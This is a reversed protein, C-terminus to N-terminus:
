AATPLAANPDSPNSRPDPHPGAPRTRLLQRSEPDFFALTTDDIRITIRRGALIEAALVM